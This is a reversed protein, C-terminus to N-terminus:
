RIGELMVVDANMRGRQVIATRGDATLTYFFLTQDDTFATLPKREGGDIPVYELNSIGNRVAIVVIGSSDPTWRLGLFPWPFGGPPGLPIRRVEGTGSAPFLGLERMAMLPKDQTWSAIWKGDPSWQAAMVVKNEPFLEVREGGDVPIKYLKSRDVEAGLYALWRGDPSWSPQMNTTGIRTVQRGNQGDADLQWVQLAGDQERSYAIHQGDPSWTASFDQAPDFTLQRPNESDADLIWLDMQGNVDSTFVIRKGDRSVDPSGTTYTGHTIQRARTANEEPTGDLPVQWLHAEVVRRVSALSKGDRSVSLGDYQDLDQTVRRAAAGTTSVFWIQPKEVWSRSGTVYLGSGDPAWRCGSLQMWNPGPIIRAEGGELPKLMLKPHLLDNRDLQAYAMEKGNPSWAPELIAAAAEPAAYVEHCNGGGPYDAVFHHFERSNVVRLFLFRKGDPAFSPASDVDRLVERPQGGLPSVQWLTRVIESSPRTTYLLWNSDPTFVLNGLLVDQRPPVVDSEANTALQRVRIADRGEVQTEFAIFQGNPAFAPTDAKGTTTLKSIHLSAPTAPGHAGRNWLLAAAAASVAAVGFVVWWPRRKRRAPAAPGSVAAARVASVGGSDLERKLARLDIAMDKASQYREDPSKAMAKRIIRQLELPTRPDSEHLPRPQDRLISHMVEVGSDGGFAVQNSVMEYLISGLSFIDSRHDLNQGRAQEPSMYAVTGLVTGPRTLSDVRPSSQVVTEDGSAQPGDRAALKALGFDLIKVIGDSRVMINEPKLDRHVVGATHAAALGEAVQVAIDLVRSTDLRGARMEERLTHGAVFELSIFHQGEAEGIEYITTINPHNLASTALAEQKFRQLRDPDRVADEPLFKLAVERELHSDHAKYVEGMGGAGLRELIRYHSLTRRSM